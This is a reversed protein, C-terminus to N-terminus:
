IHILSLDVVAKIAYGDTVAQNLSETTYVLNMKGNGDYGAFTVGGEAGEAAAANTGTAVVVPTFNGTYERDRICMEELNQINGFIM